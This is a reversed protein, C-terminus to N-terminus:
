ERSRRAPANATEDLSARAYGVFQSTEAPDFRGFGEAINRPPSRVADALQECFNFDRKVAPERLIPIVRDRLEVALQWVVLERFNRAMDIAVLVASAIWVEPKSGENRVRTNFRPTSGQM